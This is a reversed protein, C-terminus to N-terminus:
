FVRARHLGGGYHGFVAGHLIISDATSDNLEEFGQLGNTASLQNVGAVRKETVFSRKKLGGTERLMAGM